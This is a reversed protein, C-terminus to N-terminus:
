GLFLLYVVLVANIPILPVRLLTRVAKLLHVIQRKVGNDLAVDNESLGVKNLFREEHLVALANGFLVLVQIATM